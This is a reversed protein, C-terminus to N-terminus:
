IKERIREIHYVYHPLIIAFDGHFLFAVEVKRWEPWGFPLTLYKLPMWILLLMGWERGAVGGFSMEPLDTRCIFYELIHWNNPHMHKEQLFAYAFEPKNCKKKKREKLLSVCIRLLMVDVHSCSYMKNNQEKLILYVSQTTWEIVLNENSTVIVIGTVFVRMLISCVIALKQKIFRVVTFYM